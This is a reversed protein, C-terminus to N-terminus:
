GQSTLTFTPTLGIVNFGYSATLTMTSPTGATTSASVCIQNAAPSASCNSSASTLVATLQGEACTTDCSGGGSYQVMVYRGAQQVALAMTNWTWLAMGFELIGFILFVLIGMTLGAEAATAGEDWGRRSNPQRIDAVTMM